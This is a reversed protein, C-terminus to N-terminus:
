RRTQFETSNLLSWLIDEFAEARNGVRRVYALCRGLERDTPRRALTRLYVVRVADEDRPYASLIRALLNTGRAQIRQNIQPENMLLLAQPITGTAEDPRASPDLRFAQHVAGEVVSTFGALTLRARVKAAAPPSFKGLVGVLSQWLADAPLRGPYGAAFLHHQEASEGPRIQRQYARSGAVARFFSKVDYGSGRFAAALRPLVAPFVADRRPGLDDVPQYFSQGLLAGWVRNVYAAAFWPNDPATVAEALAARREDDRLRAGPRRGDLFRPQVVSLRKPDDKGPMRYEAFPLSTLAYGVVKKDERAPREKLRAFYAALEHFQVRKWDDFPHDHCQACQIQIGLFVRATEAAREATADAGVRSLLFFAAGNQGPQKFRAEGGATLLARTIDAWSANQRLRGALWVEFHRAFLLGRPDSLRSTIVERWYHAWHSAFEPSDLLRDILRARKDPDRDTLFETVDAPLPLRGTLDLTVRRVFQEDSLVPGPRVGVRALERDILRDIEGPRLPESSASRWAAPAIVGKAAAIVDEQQPAAPGKQGASARRGPLALLGLLAV